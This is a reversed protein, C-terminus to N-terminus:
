AFHIEVSPDVGDGTTLDLVEIAGAQRLDDAALELRAVQDPPAIVKVV